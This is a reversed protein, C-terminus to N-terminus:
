ADYLTIRSREIGSYYVNSQSPFSGWRQHGQSYVFTVLMGHFPNSEVAEAGCRCSGYHMGVGKRQSAKEFVLQGMRPDYMLMLSDAISM